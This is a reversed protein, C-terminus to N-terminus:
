PRVDTPPIWADSPGGAGGPVCNSNAYDEGMRFLTQRASRRLAPSIIGLTPRFPLFDCNRVLRKAIEKPNRVPNM